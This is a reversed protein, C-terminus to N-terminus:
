AKGASPGWQEQTRVGGGQRQRENFELGARESAHEASFPGHKPTSNFLRTILRGISLVKFPAQGELSSAVTPISDTVYFRHFTKAGKPGHERTFKKWAENPFVPHTVYASVKAAGLQELEGKCGMLTGGSQCLDDVIVVHKGKPDGETLKLYRKDGVRMKSFTMTDIGQQAFVPGYRKKAGDDPFCVAVPTKDEDKMEEFERTLLEVASTLVLKINDSFYFREQLAHIDFIVLKTDGSLARPTASLADCWVKATSVQGEYDVREMTAVPMFPAVVTFSRALYRPITYIVSIVDFFKNINSMDALMIVDRCRLEGAPVFLNPTGDPFRNMEVQAGVVEGDSHKVIADALDKFEPTYVLVTPLKKQTTPNLNVREMPALSVGFERKAQAFASGGWMMTGVGAGTVAGGFRWLARQWRPGM